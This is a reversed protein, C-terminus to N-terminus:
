HSKYRVSRRRASPRYARCAWRERGPRKKSPSPRYNQTIHLMESFIALYLHSSYISPNCGAEHAMSLPGPPRLLCTVLNTSKWAAARLFTGLLPVRIRRSSMHKRYYDGLEDARRFSCKAIERDRAEKSRYRSANSVRPFHKRFNTDKRRRTVKPVRSRGV